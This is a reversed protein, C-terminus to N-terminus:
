LDFSGIVHLRRIRRIYLRRRRQWFTHGSFSFTDHKCLFFDIWYNTYLVKQTDMRIFGAKAKKKNKAAVTKKEKLKASHMADVTMKIKKLTATNLDLCLHRVLNEAFAPFHESEAFLSLQEAIAKGFQDFETETKAIPIANDISAGNERLGIHLLFLYSPTEITVQFSTCMGLMDKALQMNYNEDLKQLRLKEALSDEPATLSKATNEQRRRAGKDAKKQTEKMAIIDGLKQKKKKQVAKVTTTHTKASDDNEKDEGDWKDSITKPQM